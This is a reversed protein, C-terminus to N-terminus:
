SSAQAASSSSDIMLRYTRVNYNYKCTHTTNVHSKTMTMMMKIM